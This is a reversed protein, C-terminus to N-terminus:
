SPGPGRGGPQPAPRRGPHGGGPGRVARLLRAQGAVASLGGSVLGALWGRVTLTDISAVAADGFAPLVHNDLLSRYDERTKPKLTATTAFWREALEGM